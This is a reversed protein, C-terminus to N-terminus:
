SLDTILMLKFWSGLSRPDYVRLQIMGFFRM